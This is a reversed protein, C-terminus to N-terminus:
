PKLYKWCVGIAAIWLLLSLPSQWVVDARHVGAAFLVIVFVILLIGFTAASAAFLVKLWRPINATM